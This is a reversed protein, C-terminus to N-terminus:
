SPETTGGHLDPFLRVHREVMAELLELFNQREAENKLALQDGVLRKVEESRADVDPALAVHWCVGALQVAAEMAEPEGGAQDLLPQAFLKLEEVTANVVTRRDFPRAPGEAKVRRVRARAEDLPKPQSMCCHNHKKGSGCPCPENRGTKQASSM